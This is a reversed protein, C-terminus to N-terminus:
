LIFSRITWYHTKDKSGFKSTLHPNALIGEVHWITYKEKVRQPALQAFPGTRGTNLKQCHSLLVVKLESLYLIFKVISKNPRSFFERNSLKKM